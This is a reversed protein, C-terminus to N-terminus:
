QTFGLTLNINGNNITANTVYRYKSDLTYLPIQSIINQIIPKIAGMNSFMNLMSNNNFALKDIIANQIFFSRSKPDFIINGSVKLKASINQILANSFALNGGLVVKDGQNFLLDPNSINIKGYNTNKSVPFQSAISSMLTSAPIRMTLGEPSIGVCGILIWLTIISLIIKKM